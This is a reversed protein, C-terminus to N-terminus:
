FFSVSNVLTILFFWISQSFVTALFKSLLGLSLFLIGFGMIMFLLPIVVLNALVCVPSVLGFYYAILPALGLWAALSVSVSTSLYYKFNAKNRVKFIDYLMPSICIISLVATYSFIFGMDFIQNPNVMLIIFSSLGLLNFISIKRRLIEGLGLISFMTTARIISPRAGALITFSALFLVSLIISLNKQIRFIKLIVRLAFYIIGVHLGSIALIHLTGTKAFIDNLGSPIKQRKGLLIATLISSYPHALYAEIHSEFKARLSYLARRTSITIRKDEGVKKQILGKKVSLISYIRKNALYKGYDFRSQKKYSFPQYLSGELCAIDGYRFLPRRDGYLNVLVFGTTDRRNGDSRISNVELIFSRKKGGRSGKPDSAVTGEMLATNQSYRAYNKIHNEDIINFTNYRVIGLLFVLLFFSAIFLSDRKFSLTLLTFVAIISAALAQPRCFEFVALSTLILSCIFVVSIFLIYYNKM